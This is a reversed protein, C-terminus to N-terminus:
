QPSTYQSHKSALDSTWNSSTRANSNHSPSFSTDNSTTSPSNILQAMYTNVSNAGNRETNNNYYSSDNEEYFEDTSDSIISPPGRNYTNLGLGNGLDVYNVPPHEVPKFETSTLPATDIINVLSGNGKDAAIMHDNSQIQNELFGDVDIINHSDDQVIPSNNNDLKGANKINTKMEIQQSIPFALCRKRIKKNWKSSIVSNPAKRFLEDIEELTLGRTEYVAFYVVIVAVVNLGGWIFFIKPGMSSTHSGVDVIYPTILACIFNVLWNAAACIATCKSRVGLPYLEASVVWVVGGWTASFAAIFLCIFAIMIKSAVVTKGESVGVIAIVLNAIAMIVGGALLVPRRGIRDVLYMGPISFAVNVAYSIFSVLYSNDVGTNNFFNVGYYFIFNIGSAQQFAQIAIGTFIRLIQKPRNESTKFCDLLTSPGFSAEYDYTAKIEVLEELLRPDEIPLGRLFSLSKAAKNLEDKLVYYRPSEPLFIMGVALISSWVYQLGIPIRYSSPGNKSHTGQSVASSVLLGITIAWQYSSIIAGRLNKQAAEAQYLPVVASIIGIGIGSIVRGVILLVLGGSAVQLSNGISFIVATSFMITPKRGYSDSIYPAILAGFFTGLSLFSVLIAIQSTTFYSHNPAIYTKVYPMDTISNILGTDYGFLFGGVAVFISVLVSMVNSRLPLPQSLLISTTEIAGDGAPENNTYSIQYANPDDCMVISKAETDNTSETYANRHPMNNHNITCGAGQHHGFDNGPNLHSNDERQRLCNQSDNM